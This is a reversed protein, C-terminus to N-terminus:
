RTTAVLKQDIDVPQTWARADLMMVLLGLITLVSFVLYRPPKPKATM